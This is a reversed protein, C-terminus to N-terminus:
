REVMGIVLVVLVLNLIFILRIRSFKGGSSKKRSEELFKRFEEPSRSHYGGGM